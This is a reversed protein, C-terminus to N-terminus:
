PTNLIFELSKKIDGKYIGGHYCILTDIDYELLKKVSNKAMDIDLTFQPNAIALMENEVVLADGSVLTKFERMYISIHGPM